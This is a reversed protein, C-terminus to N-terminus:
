IASDRGPKVLGVGFLVVWSWRRWRVFCASAGVYKLGRPLGMQFIRDMIVPRGAPDSNSVLEGALKHAIWMRPKKESHPVVKNDLCVVDDVSVSGETVLEGNVSVRGQLLLTDAQRRSCLLGDALRRNLRVKGTDKVLTDADDDDDDDNDDDKHDDSKANGEGHSSVTSFARRSPLLHVLDESMRSSVSRSNTAAVCCPSSNTFTAPHLLSSRNSLRTVALFTRM